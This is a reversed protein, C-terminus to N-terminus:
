RVVALISDEDISVRAPRATSTFRFRGGTEGVPVLGLRTKKERGVIAVVPVLMEFEEPVGSQEITGQIIFKAPTVRRTTAQLKYTPIGTGYVWHNFFWDLRRNRELDAARSMYKEVHRIFDETSAIRGRYAAVFDALMRFFREDSGKAPDTMLLRLMHLVWCAKKYVINDYGEPNLSNSLRRGLWIPGGSEVTNGEKTKELLDRKYGRLLERFPRRGPREHALYLAAAYSAFGESLWQDRYHRWGVANGWWQHAIEHAVFTEQFFEGTIGSLGIESRKNHPLFSLTPLYVLGPWGQGFSGPIQSIALHRYPFPGFLTEFYRVARAADEAVGDLVAAPVLPAMRGPDTPIVLLPTRRRAVRDYGLDGLPETAARRKELTSEAGRSAYVELTLNGVRRLRSDYAGLNFGAVPLPGESVWRSHKWGESSSQEVPTGTAVLTLHDPYHFTLDYTAGAGVGRNPYWSGHAGVYLADNGVDAIVNGQYAFSLRYKKGVPYPSPLIVVVWDNGQRAAESEELSPNQFLVLSRGQEDKVERLKLRRSLEFLLLRDAASRSELELEARGELSHDSHIRTEIKYSNVQVSGVMLSPARSASTRSAFSCWVDAYARGGSRRAAAVHVTEPVREDHTVEFVGLNVGQLHAQFFPLEREGVLDQLIRISFDPSLRRVVPNWYELFGTPQELDDPDPRRARALLEEATQDTFRVYLSTFPESLIPSRIFQALNRQEVANPPILLVEGQGSFVAGTVEGSVKTFFGIFGRNFFIKVRDRALQADRLFYIEAPDLSVDNLQKLLERPDPPQDAPAARGSMASLLCCLLSLCAGLMVSAAAKAARSFDGVGDM